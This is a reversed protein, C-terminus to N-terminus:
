RDLCHYYANWSVPNRQIKAMACNPDKKPQRTTTAPRTKGVSEARAAAAPNCNYFANWSVPNRQSNAMKCYASKAPAAISQGAFGAALAAAAAAILLKKM